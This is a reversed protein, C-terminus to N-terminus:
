GKTTRVMVTLPPSSGVQLTDLIEFGHRQYLSRNRPNTSELFATANDDDCRRLTHEMLASGFGQGRHLPEVGIFLLYWHPEEPIYQDVRDLLGTLDEQKDAAVRNQILQDVASEDPHVDPPLWLAGGRYGDVHYASQHVFSPAGYAKVFYPFHTLYDHPDPWLWRALPDTSFALTLADIVATEEPSTAIKISPQTM